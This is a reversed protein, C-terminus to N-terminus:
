EVKHRMINLFENTIENVARVIVPTSPKCAHYALELHAIVTCHYRSLLPRDLLTVTNTADHKLHQPRTGGKSTATATAAIKVVKRPLTPLPRALATESYLNSAEGPARWSWNKQFFNIM